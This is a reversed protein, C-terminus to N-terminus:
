RQLRFPPPDALPVGGFWCRPNSSLFRLCKVQASILLLMVQTDGQHDALNMFTVSYFTQLVFYPTTLVFLVSVCMSCKSVIGLARDIEASRELASNLPVGRLM